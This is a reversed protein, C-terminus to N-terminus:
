EMRFAEDSAEEYRRTRQDLWNVLFHMLYVLMGLGLPATYVFLIFTVQAARGEANDAVPNPRGLWANLESTIAPVRMAYYILLGVGAGVVMLLLMLITGFGLRVVQPKMFPSEVAPQQSM